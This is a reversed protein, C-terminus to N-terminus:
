KALSIPASGQRASERLGGLVRMQRVSEEAPYRLQVEGRIAQTFHELMLSYHSATPTELPQGNLELLHTGNPLWPENMTIAGTTGVLEVRQKFPQGISSDIIARRYLNL